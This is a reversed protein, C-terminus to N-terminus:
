KIEHANRTYFYRNQETQTELTAVIAYELSASCVLQVRFILRNQSQTMKMKYIDDM